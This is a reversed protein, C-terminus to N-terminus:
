CGLCSWCKSEICLLVVFEVKEAYGVGHCSMLCGVHVVSVMICAVGFYVGFLVYLDAEYLDM